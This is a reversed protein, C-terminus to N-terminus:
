PATARQIATARCRWCTVEGGMPHTGTSRDTAITRALVTECRSCTITPLSPVQTGNTRAVKDLPQVPRQVTPHGM